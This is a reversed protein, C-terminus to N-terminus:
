LPTLTLIRFKNIDIEYFSEHDSREIYHSKINMATLVQVRYDCRVTHVLDQVGEWTVCIESDSLAHVLFKPKEIIEQM